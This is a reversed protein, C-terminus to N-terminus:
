FDYWLGAGVLEESNRFFEGYISPGTQYFFGVRMLQGGHAPRWQWGTEVTLPGGFDNEQRLLGNIAFFPAGCCDRVLPSYELGFQFAWPKSGGDVFYAYEVEGYIRLADTPYISHGWVFANRSYNIRVFSPNKLMFEDGLHASTHYWEIKMQYPGIGYTLPVGIRFDYAAVDSNLTLDQRIIAGGDVDLQWGQPRFDATNGYRLLGARGGVSGDLFTDGGVESVLQGGLRPERPGALLSHWILGSPLLQWSWPECSLDLCDPVVTGPTLCPAELASYPLASAPKYAPQTDLLQFNQGTQYVPSAAPAVTTASALTARAEALTGARPGDVIYVSQQRSDYTTQPFSPAAAVGYIPGAFTAPAANSPDGYWTEAMAARALAAMAIVFMAALQRM